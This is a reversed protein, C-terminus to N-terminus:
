NLLLFSHSFHAIEDAALLWCCCDVLLCCCCWLCVFLGASSASSLIDFEQFSNELLQEADVALIHCNLAM